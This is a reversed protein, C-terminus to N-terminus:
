GQGVYEIIFDVFDVSPGVGVTLMIFDGQNLYVTAAATGNAGSPAYLFGLISKKYIYLSETQTLGITNWNFGGTTQLLPNRLIGGSSASGSNGYKFTMSYIGSKKIEWKDGFVNNPVHQIYGQATNEVFISANTTVNRIFTLLATNTTSVNVAPSCLHMRIPKRYVGRKGIGVGDNPGYSM